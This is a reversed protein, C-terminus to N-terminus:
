NLQELVIQMDWGIRTLYRIYNFNNAVPSWNAINTNISKGLIICNHYSDNPSIIGNTNQANNCYFTLPEPNNYYNGSIDKLNRGGIWDTNEVFTSIRFNRYKFSNYTSYPIYQQINLDYYFLSNIGDYSFRSNPITINLKKFYTPQQAAINIVDNSTAYITSIINNGLIEKGFIQLDSFSLDITGSISLLKNVVFGFYQYQTTFTNALMKEYYGGTYSTLRTTQSAEVIESFTIGDSSGYVRWEAPAKTLNNIDQYIRYRTLMISQPMKIIVWDGQYSSNIYNTGQYVGSTNYQSMNWRPVSADNQNFNFLADKTTYTYYTSSSYIEYIGFGYSIGTNNLTLTQHYVNKGLLSVTDETSSSTYLKSPYQREVTYTPATNYLQNSSLFVNNFLANNSVM